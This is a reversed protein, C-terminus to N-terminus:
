ACHSSGHGSPEPVPAHLPGESSRARSPHHEHRCSNWQPWHRVGLHSGNRTRASLCCGTDVALVTGHRGRRGTQATQPLAHRELASSSQPAATRPQRVVGLAGSGAPRRGRGPSAQLLTAHGAGHLQDRAHNGFRAATLSARPTKCLGRRPGRRSRFSWPGRAKVSRATWDTFAPLWRSSKTRSVGRRCVHQALRGPRPSGPMPPPPSRLLACESPKRWRFSM